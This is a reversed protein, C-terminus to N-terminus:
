EGMSCGGSRMRCRGLKGDVEKGVHEFVFGRRRVFDVDVFLDDDETENTMPLDGLDDFGFATKAVVVEGEVSEPVM